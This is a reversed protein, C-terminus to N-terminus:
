NESKKKKRKKDTRNPETKTRKGFNKRRSMVGDLANKGLRTGTSGGGFDWSGKLRNYIDSWIHSGVSTGTLNIMELKVLDKIFAVDKIRPCKNLFVGIINKHSRLPSVDELQSCDSFFAFLVSNIKELPSIDRLASNSMSKLIQLKPFNAFVGVDKIKMKAGLDKVRGPGKGKGTGSINLSSMKTMGEMPWINTLGKNARVQLKTMETMDRLPEISTLCNNCLQLERMNTLGRLPEVGGLGRSNLLLTSMKTSNRLYNLEREMMRKEVNWQFAYLETLNEVPSLDDIRCYHMILTNLKRFNRVVDINTVATSDIDLARLEKLEALDDLDTVRACGWLVLDHLNRLNKIPSLDKVLTYKINLAMLKEFHKVVDINEIGTAGVNLVRLNTLGRLFSIDKIQPNHNLTLQELKGLKAICTFDEVKLCSSVDLYKAHPNDKILREFESQEIRKDPMIIDEPSDVYILDEPLDLSIEWPRTITDQLIHNFPRDEWEEENIEAEKVEIKSEIEEQLAKEEALKQEEIEKRVEEKIAESIIPEEEAVIEEKKVEETQEAVQSSSIKSKQAQTNMERKETKPFKGWRKELGLIASETDEDEEDEFDDMESSEFDEPKKAVRLQEKKKERGIKLLDSIISM